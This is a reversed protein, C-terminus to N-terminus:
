LTFLCNTKCFTFLAKFSESLIKIMGGAKRRKSAITTKVATKVLIIKAFAGELFAAELVACYNLRGFIGM